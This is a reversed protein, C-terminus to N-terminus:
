SYVVAFYQDLLIIFSDILFLERCHLRKPDRWWHVVESFLHLFIVAKVIISVVNWINEQNEILM